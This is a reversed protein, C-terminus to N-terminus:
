SISGSFSVDNILENLDEDSCLKKSGCAKIIANYAKKYEASHTARKVTTKAPKERCNGLLTKLVQSAWFKEEPTYLDFDESITVLENLKSSALTDLLEKLEEEPLDRVKELTTTIIGKWFSALKAFQKSTKIYEDIPAWITSPSKKDAYMHLYRSGVTTIMDKDRAIKRGSSTYEFDAEEQMDAQIRELEELLAHYMEEVTLNAWDKRHMETILGGIERGNLFLNKVIKKDESTYKRNSIEFDKIINWLDRVSRSARVREFEADGIEHMMRIEHQLLVHALEHRILVNLQYYKTPDMLFGQGLYIVGHEFDVAATFHKDISLPVIKFVFEKFRKAYKAHKYPGWRGDKNILIAMIRKQWLQESDTMYTTDIDEVGGELFIKDRLKM